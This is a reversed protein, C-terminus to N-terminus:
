MKSVQSTRILSELLRATTRSIDRCQIQRVYTYYSTLLIKAEETLNPKFRSKVYKIYGKLKEKDWVCEKRNNQLNSKNNIIKQSIKLDKYKDKNDPLLLVIDFRSLLPGSIGTNDSLSKDYDFKFHRPNMAAIISTRSRLSNVM